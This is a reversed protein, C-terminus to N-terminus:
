ENDTQLYLLQHEKAHYSVCPIRITSAHWKLKGHVLYHIKTGGVASVSNMNYTYFSISESQMSTLSSAKKGMGQINAELVRINRLSNAIVPHMGTPRGGSSAGVEEDM